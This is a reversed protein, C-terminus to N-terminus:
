FPPRVPLLITATRDWFPPRALLLIAAVRVWFPPRALLGLHFGNMGFHRGRLCFLIATMIITVPLSSRPRESQESEWALCDATSHLSATYVESHARFGLLFEPAAVLSLQDFYTTHSPWDASRCGLVLVPPQFALGPVAGFPCYGSAALYLSLLPAPRGPAGSAACM